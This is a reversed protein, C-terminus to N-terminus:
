CILPCVSALLSKPLQPILFTCPESEIELVYVGCFNRNYRHQTFTNQPAWRSFSRSCIASRLRMEFYSSHWCSPSVLAGLLSSMTLCSVVSLGSSWSGGTPASPSQFFECSLSHISSSIGTTVLYSTLAQSPSDEM